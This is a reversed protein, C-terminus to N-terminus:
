ELGGETQLQRTVCDHLQRRIRELSRFLTRRSMSLREMIEEVPRNQDYRYTLIAHNDPPLKKLCSHLAQLRADLHSEHHSREESLLELVDDSLPILSQQAKDRHKLVQLYAFRYAWPLFPKTQDYQPFKRMLALSTEQMVDRADAENPLLSFIYRFVAQQHQTLLLVLHETHPDLPSSM